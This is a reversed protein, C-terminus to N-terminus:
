LPPSPHMASHSATSHTDQRSASRINSTQLLCNFIGQLWLVIFVNDEHTM